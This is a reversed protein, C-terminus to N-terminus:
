SQVLKVLHIYFMDEPHEAKLKYLTEFAKEESLFVAHFLPRSGDIEMMLVYCSKM